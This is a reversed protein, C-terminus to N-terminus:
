SPPTPPPLPALLGNVFSDWEVHQVEGIGAAGSSCAAWCYGDSQTGSAWGWGDERVDRGDVSIGRVAGDEMVVEIRDLSFGLGEGIAKVYAEKTTWLRTVM